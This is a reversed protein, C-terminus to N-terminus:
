RLQRWCLSQTSLSHGEVQIRGKKLMVFVQAPSWGVMSHKRVEPAAQVSTNLLPQPVAGESKGQEDDSDRTSSSSPFDVFSCWEASVQAPSQSASVWSLPKSLWWCTCFAHLLPLELDIEGTSM